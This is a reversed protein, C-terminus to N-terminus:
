SGARAPSFRPRITTASVVPNMKPGTIVATSTHIPPIRAGNATNATTIASNRGTASRRGGSRPRSSTARRVANSRNVSRRRCPASIM